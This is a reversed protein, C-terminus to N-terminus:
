KKIYEKSSIAESLVLKNLSVIAEFYEQFSMEGDFVPQIIKYDVQNPLTINKDHIEIILTDKSSHPKKTIMKFQISDFQYFSLHDNLSNIYTFYNSMPKTNHPSKENHKIKLRIVEPMVNKLKHQKDINFFWNTSSIRNHENLDLDGDKTYFMWIASNNLVEEKGQMAVKPVKLEKKACSILGIFLVIIISIKKM